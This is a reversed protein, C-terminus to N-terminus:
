ACAHSRNRTEIGTIIYETIYLVRRQEFIHHQDQEQEKLHGDEQRLGDLQVLHDAYPVTQHDHSRGTAALALVNGDELLGESVELYPITSLM